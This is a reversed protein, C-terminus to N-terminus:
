SDQQLWRAVQEAYYTLIGDCGARKLSTMAEMVIEKESLWGNDCAAKLM